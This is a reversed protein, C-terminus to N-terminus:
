GIEAKTIKGKNLTLSIRNPILDDTIAFSIGDCEVIRLTYGREIAINNAEAVDLGIFYSCIDEPQEKKKKTKKYDELPCEKPIGPDKDFTDHYGDIVLGEKKNCFWKYCNEFSDATYIRETEFGDCEQCSTLVRVKITKEEKM